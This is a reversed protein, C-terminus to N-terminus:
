KPMVKSNANVYTIKALVHDEHQDDNYMIQYAKEIKVSAVLHPLDKPLAEVKRRYDIVWQPRHTQFREKMFDRHFDMPLIDKNTLAYFSAIGGILPAPRRSDTKTVIATVEKGIESSHLETKRRLWQYYLPVQLTMQLTFLFFFARLLRQRTMLARTIIMTSYILAFGAFFYYRPPQYPFLGFFSHGGLGLLLMAYTARDCRLIEKAKGLRILLATGYLTAMLFVSYRNVYFGRAIMSIENVIISSSRMEDERSKVHWRQFLEGSIGSSDVLYDQLVSAGIIIAIIASASFAAQPWKKSRLALIADGLILIGIMPYGWIFSAKTFYACSVLILALIVGTTAKGWGIWCYIAALLFMTGLPEVFALRSIAFFALSGSIACCAILSILRGTVRRCILYFFLLSLLSACASVLRATAISTGFVKFVACNILTFLSNHSFWYLDYEAGMQGRNALGAAAKLYWGEDSLLSGSDSVIDYPPDNEIGVFRLVNCVILLLILVPFLIRKLNTPQAEFDSEVVEHTGTETDRYQHRLVPQDRNERDQLGSIDTPNKNSSM